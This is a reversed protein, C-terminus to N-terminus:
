EDDDLEVVVQEANCDCSDEDEDGDSCCKSDACECDGDDCDKTCWCSDDEDDEDCPPVDEDDATALCTSCACEVPFYCDHSRCYYYYGNSCNDYFFWHKYHANWCYHDWHHHYRGSYWWGHRVSDGCYYRFQRGYKEHYHKDVLRNKHYRREGNYQAVQKSDFGKTKRGGIGKLRPYGAHESSRTKGNRSDHREKDHHKVMHTNHKSSPKRKTKKASKSRRHKNNKTPAIRRAAHNKGHGHYAHGSHKEQADVAGGFALLAAVTLVAAWILTKSTSKGRETPPINLVSPYPRSKCSRSLLNQFWKM